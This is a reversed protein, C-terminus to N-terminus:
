KISTHIPYRGDRRASRIMAELNAPPVNQLVPSGTGLIFGGDPALEEIMKQVKAEIEQPTSRLTYMADFNGFLCFKGKTRERILKMDIKFGKKDEEFALAEANITLLSDLIQMPAGCFYFISKMKIKRIDSVLKQAYPLSFKEFQAPSITDTGAFVEELWFAEVGVEKLAKAEEIYRQTCLEAAEKIMDPNHFLSILTTQLGLRCGVEGFPVGLIGTVLIEDGVEEVLRQALHCRGDVIIEDSSTIERELIEIANELTLDGTQYFPAEDKPVKWTIKQGTEKHSEIVEFFTGRDKIVAQDKWGKPKNLGTLIWDYRHYRYAHLAMKVKDEVDGLVWDSMRLGMVKPTYHSSVYPAVPVLDPEELNLAALMREKSTFDRTEM